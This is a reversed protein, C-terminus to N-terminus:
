TGLLLLGEVFIVFLENNTKKKSFSVEILATELFLMIFPCTNEDSSAITEDNLFLERDIMNGVNQNAKCM